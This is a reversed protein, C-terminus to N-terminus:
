VKDDAYHEEKRNNSEGASRPSKNTEPEGTGSHYDLAKLFEKFVENFRDQATFDAYKKDRLFPPIEKLDLPECLLPLVMVRKEKLEKQMAAQLEKKVWESRVSAKSLVIAFFDTEDIANGIKEMLSEGIHIEAEDLWIKYGAKKLFEAVKRVFPKDKSSHCM